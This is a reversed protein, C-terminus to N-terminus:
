FLPPLAPSPPCETKWDVPRQDAGFPRIGEEEEEEWLVKEASIYLRSLGCGALHTM